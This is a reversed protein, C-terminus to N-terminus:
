QEVHAIKVFEEIDVAYKDSVQKVAVITAKPEIKHVAKTIKVYPLPDHSYLKIDSTKTEAKGDNIVVTALTVIATNITKTIKM